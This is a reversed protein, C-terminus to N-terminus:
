DKKISDSIADLNQLLRINNKDLNVAEKIYELAEEKKDLKFASISLLDYIFSNWCFDENIYNNNRKKITLAEKLIKYAEEFEDNSYYLYGLEVYGERLLPAEEIAKIYWMKAEELYQLGNYSRAIYRMSAAREEKWTSNKHNLHKHLTEICKLHENHYMYERGLYHLNRDSEPEDIISQELLGLYSSRSKTKDPYHNLVIKDSLVERVENSELVEHIMHVWKFGNRSHIKSIYLTTAPTGYEDFSFNLRYKVANIKDNWIKELENRWGKDFVEDIDTCVCIDADLPVMELSKNRATDFRWPIIKEEKYNIGLKDLIKQSGDTSGTDLVYIDDAESMSEYWREIHKSENKCIAYVYIKYKNM